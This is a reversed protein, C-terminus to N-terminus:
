DDTKIEQSKMVYCVSGIIEVNSDEEFFISKFEPNSPRLEIGHSTKFIKKLTAENDVKAVVTQGFYFDSSKKIIVLDGDEIADDKMSDGSVRLAFHEFGIALIESPVSVSKTEELAETLLGAAVTGSLPIEQYDWKLDNFDLLTFERTKKGNKIESKLVGKLELNKIYQQVSNASKFGFQKMILHSKPSIKYNLIYDRIFYFIEKEKFTLNDLPSM